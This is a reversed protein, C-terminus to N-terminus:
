NLVIDAATRPKLIWTGDGVPVLVGRFTGTRGPLFFGHPAPILQDIVVTIKFATDAPDAVKLMFDPGSVLTDRLVVNNLQILVADLAGGMANKADVVSTVRPLPAVGNALTGFLGGQLVGQGLNRGSTGLVLVSDGINNGQSGPRARSGTIRLSGTSDVLFASSDRFFQLASTVTGRVMVRKGAPLARAAALSVEAYGFRVVRGLRISDIQNIIRMSGTDGAVVGISDALIHRDIVVRYGGLPLSDFTAIGRANTVATRLTDQGGPAVLAVRAGVVVTDLATASHSADRDFYVLVQIGGNPLPPVVLREGANTCAASGLLALSFGLTIRRM